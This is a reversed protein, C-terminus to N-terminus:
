NEGVNDETVVPETPLTEEITTDVTIEATAPPAVSNNNGDGDVGDDENNIIVASGNQLKIQGAIVVSEGAKLGAIIAVENGRTNGITVFRQEAILQLNGDADPGKDVIVYVTNGYPNYTLATQPITIYNHDIGLDITILGYMGPLLEQEKNDVVARVLVNRTSSEVKSNIAWIKGVYKKDPYLDTTVIVTQGLDIKGLDHQPLYFDFYIPDLSQLTVIMDGPSLYEGIDIASIGLRGAFPARIYKKAIVAEQESVKARAKELNATDVDATAQPISQEKLQRMSRDYTLMSINADAKLSALAALEDDARLRVLLTGAQVQDGSEFYIGEVVGAVETSIDVGRVARLTGVAQIDDGWPQMEAVITAVTKPQKGMQSMYKTIMSSEFSKYSYIAGLVIGVLVLMIIMRRIM